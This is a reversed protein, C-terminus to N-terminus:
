SDVVLTVPGDNVIEVTMGAGFRGTQVDVGLAELETIFQSYLELARSPDAAQTFSPRNGKSTDSILTYQSVVLAAAGTDLLSLDFRGDDNAFVRLKAVKRALNCATESSDSGAVGLLVCLGVGISGVSDAGVSVQARKVRQIVARM